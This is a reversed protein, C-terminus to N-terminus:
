KDLFREQWQPAPMWCSQRKGFWRYRNRAVWGYLGDRIFPPVILLIIAAKWPFSLMGMVRLAAGSRSYIRGRWLLLFSPQDIEALGYHRLLDRASSGQLSGFRFIGRRDRKLLFRVTGSCLNCVGDFLIIPNEPQV